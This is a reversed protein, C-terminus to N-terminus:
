NRLSIFHSAGNLLHLIVRGRGEGKNHAPPWWSTKQVRKV